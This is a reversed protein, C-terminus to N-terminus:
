TTHTEMASFWDVPRYDSTLAGFWRGAASYLLPDSAEWPRGLRSPRTTSLISTKGAGLAVIKRSWSIARSDVFIAADKPEGLSVSVRCALM